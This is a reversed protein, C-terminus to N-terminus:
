NSVNGLYGSFYYGPINGEILKIIIPIDTSVEVVNSVFPLLVRISATINVSVNILASNIGYSKIDTNIKCFINSILDIKIPIKPMINNLLTNNFIIGSPLEYIVGNKSYDNNTLKSINGRSLSNINEEVVKSTEDLIRNVEKSNFDISVINNSSDKMTIFLDDYNINKVITNTVTTNILLSIIRKTEIEAYSMLQPVAKENIKKLVFIISIILLFIIIVLKNMIRKKKIRKLHMRM